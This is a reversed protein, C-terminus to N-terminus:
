QRTGRGRLQWSQSRFARGGLRRCRGKADVRQLMTTTIDCGISAASPFLVEGHRRHLREVVNELESEVALIRELYLLHEAGAAVIPRV